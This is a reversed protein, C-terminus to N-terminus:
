LRFAANADAGDADDATISAHGTPCPALGPRRTDDCVAGVPGPSPPGSDSRPGKHRVSGVTSVTNAFTTRMRIFLRGRHGPARLFTQCAGLPPVTELGNGNRMGTLRGWQFDQSNQSREALIM